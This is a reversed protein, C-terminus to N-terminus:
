GDIVWENDMIAGTGEDQAAEQLVGVQHGVWGPGAILFQGGEPEVM